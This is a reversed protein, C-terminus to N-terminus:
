DLSSAVAHSISQLTTMVQLHQQTRAYLRAKQIATAVQNALTQLTQVDDIQLENETVSEVYIVGLVDEKDLMPVGIASGNREASSFYYPDRSVDPAIHAARIEAVHGIIG